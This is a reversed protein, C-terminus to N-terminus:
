GAALWRRREVSVLPRKRSSIASGHPAGVADLERPRRRSASTSAIVISCGCCSSTAASSYMGPSDRARSASCPHSRCRRKSSRCIARSAPRARGSYASHKWELYMVQEPLEGIVQGQPDLAKTILTHCTACLESQGSTSARRDTPVGGVVAHRTTSARRSRSRDSSRAHRRNAPRRRRLRRRFERAHRAEREFDSPVDHLVRRRAGASGRHRRSREVPLHAFVQGKRGNARATARAMPMHCISCEDEIDARPARITSRKGASALRGTHTARRTPWSRRAGARDWRSTRARRRRGPQQPLCATAPRRSSSTRIPTCRSSRRSIPRRSPRRATCGSWVLVVTADGARSSWPCILRRM